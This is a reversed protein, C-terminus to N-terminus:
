PIAVYGINNKGFLVDVKLGIKNKVNEIININIENFIIVDYDSEEDWYGHSHSGFVYVETDSVENILKKIQKFIEQKEVPLGTFNELKGRILRERGKVIMKNYIYNLIIVFYTEM